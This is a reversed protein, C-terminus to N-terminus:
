SIADKSEFIKDLSIAYIICNIPYHKDMAYIHQFLGYFNKLNFLAILAKDVSINWSLESSNFKDVVSISDNTISSKSTHRM